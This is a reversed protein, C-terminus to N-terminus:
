TLTLKRHHFEERCTTSGRNTDRGVRSSLLRCHTGNRQTHALCLSATVDYEGTRDSLRSNRGGGDPASFRWRWM